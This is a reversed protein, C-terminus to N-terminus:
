LIVDEIEDILTNLSGIRNKVEFYVNAIDLASITRDISKKKKKYTKGVTAYIENITKGPEDILETNYSKPNFGFQAEIDELELKPDIVKFHLEEALFWSEIEMVSIVFSIKVEAQPVKFNLGLILKNIDERLVNPYVDRLGVIKLYGASILSQRQDLIYSKISSDGGCNYILIYYRLATQEAPTELTTYTINTKGGGYVRKVEFDINNVGFVEILLKKLFEQETYGEVFFAVKKVPM